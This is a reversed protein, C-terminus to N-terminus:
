FYVGKFKEKLEGLLIDKVVEEVKDRDVGKGYKRNLELVSGFYVWKERRKRHNRQFFRVRGVYYTNGNKNKQTKIFFSPKKDLNSEDELKLFYDRYINLEKDL